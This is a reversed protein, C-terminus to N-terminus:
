IFDLRFLGSRSYNPLFYRQREPLKDSDECNALMSALFVVGEESLADYAEELYPVELVCYPCSVAWFNLLVTKGKLDSLFM